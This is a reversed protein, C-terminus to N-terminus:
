ALPARRMLAHRFGYFILLIKIYACDVNPFIEVKGFIVFM